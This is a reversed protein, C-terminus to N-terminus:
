EPLIQCQTQFYFPGRITCFFILQYTNTSKEFRWVMKIMVHNASVPEFIFTRDAHQFTNSESYERSDPLLKESLSCGTYYAGNIEMVPETLHIEKKCLAMAGVSLM